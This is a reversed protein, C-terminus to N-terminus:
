DRTIGLKELVAEQHKEMIKREDDEMHDYGFLHMMSHATLFALERKQSHGYETAQEVVKDLSIVIDGLILLGTEPDVYDEPSDEKDAIVRSFDGAAPFRLGPFSLVDTPRDVGRYQRNIEWIGDNDTLTVSLEFKVPFSELEAATEVVQRIVDEASFDLRRTTEYNVSTIM